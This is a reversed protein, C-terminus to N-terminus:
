VDVPRLLTRHLREEDLTEFVFRQRSEPSHTAQCAPFGKYNSSVPGNRYTALPGSHFPPGKAAHRLPDPQAFPEAGTSRNSSATNSKSHSVIKELTSPPVHSFHQKAARDLNKRIREDSQAHHLRRDVGKCVASLLDNLHLGVFNNKDILRSTAEFMEIKANGWAYAIQRLDGRKHLDAEPTLTHVVGCRAAYLETPTCPLENDVYVFDKLWNEFRTRTNKDGEDAAAWAFTDILAYILALAPM